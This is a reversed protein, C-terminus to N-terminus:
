EAVAPDDLAAKMRGEHTAPLDEVSSRGSNVFRRKAGLM